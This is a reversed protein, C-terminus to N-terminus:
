LRAEELFSLTKLPQSICNELCRAVIHGIEELQGSDAPIDWLHRWSANHLANWLRGGVGVATKELGFGGLELLRLTFALRMWPLVGRSDLESLAGLLLSYKEPSAQHTPTLCMLLECFHLALCTKRYDARIAPFVNLTKGGICRAFESGTKMHIRYDGWTLIESLAKLKGAPRNVGGFRVAIRGHGRTYLSAYRDTEGSLRRRIVIAFDCFTM